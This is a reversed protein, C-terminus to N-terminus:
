GPADEEAMWPVRSVLDDDYVGNLYRMLGDRFLEFMLARDWESPSTAHLSDWVPALAAEIARAVRAPLEDPHKVRFVTGMSM